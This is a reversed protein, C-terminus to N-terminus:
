GGPAFFRYGVILAWRTYTSDWRIYDGIIERNLYYRLELSYKDNLDMGGGLAFSNRTFINLTRQYPPTPFFIGSKSFNISFNSIYLVDIFLKREDSLFMYYRPGVPFDIFQYHAKTPETEQDRIVDSRYYQFTPELVLGWKGGNFPLLVEAELGLRFNVKRGFDTDFSYRYGLNEGVQLSSYNIGPTVKLRYREKRDQQVFKTTEGSGTCNNYKLFYRVLSNRTYAVSELQAFKAEPCRMQNWLQQRYATNYGIKMMSNMRYRKYVLQEVPSGDVSFFFRILNEGRYSYLTAKGSLEIRLFLKELQLDPNRGLTLDNVLDSARDMGVTVAVFRVEEGLGFELVQDLNGERVEEAAGLKYTFSEPNDKWDQDKILCEQKQGNLNILYGPKFEIQGALSSCFLLAMLGIVANKMLSKKM